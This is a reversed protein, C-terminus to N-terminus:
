VPTFLTPFPNLGVNERSGVGGQGQSCGLGREQLGGRKLPQAPCGGNPNAWCSCGAKAQVPVTSLTAYVLTSVVWRLGLRGLGVGGM